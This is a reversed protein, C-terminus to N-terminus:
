IILPHRVIAFLSQLALLLKPLGIAPKHSALCALSLKLGQKLCTITVASSAGLHLLSVVKMELGMYCGLGVFFML